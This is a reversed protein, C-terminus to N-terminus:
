SAAPSSGLFRSVCIPFSHMHLPSPSVFNSLDGFCHNSPRFSSFTVDSPLYRHSHGEHIGIFVYFVTDFSKCVHAYDHCNSYNLGPYVLFHIRLYRSLIVDWLVDSIDSSLIQVLDPSSPSRRRSLPSFVRTISLRHCWCVNVVMCSYTSDASSYSFQLASATISSFFIALTAFDMFSNRTHDQKNILARLGQRVSDSQLRDKIYGILADCCDMMGDKDGNQVATKM